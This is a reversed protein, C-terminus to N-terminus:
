HFILHSVGVGYHTTCVRWLQATQPAWTLRYTIQSKGFDQPLVAVDVWQSFPENLWQFKAGAGLHKYAPNWESSGFFAAVTVGSITVPKPFTCTITKETTSDARYAIAGTTFCLDTVSAATNQPSAGEYTPNVALQFNKLDDEATPDEKPNIVDKLGYYDIDDDL